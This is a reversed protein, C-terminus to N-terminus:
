ASKQQNKQVIRAWEHFVASARPALTQPLLNKYEAQILFYPINIGQVTVFQPKRNPSLGLLIEYKAATSLSNFQM